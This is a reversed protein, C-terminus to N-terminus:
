SALVFFLLVPAFSIRFILMISKHYCNRPFPLSRHRRSSRRLSHYTPCWRRHSAELMSWGNTMLEGDLLQRLKQSEPRNNKNQSRRKGMQNTAVKGMRVYHEYPTRCGDGTKLGCGCELLPSLPRCHCRPAGAVSCSWQFHPHLCCSGNPM